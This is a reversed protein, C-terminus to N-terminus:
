RRNHNKNRGGGRLEKIKQRLNVQNSMEIGHKINEEMREKLKESVDEQVEDDLPWAQNFQHINVGGKVGAARAVTDIIWYTQRRLLGSEINIKTHFGERILTYDEVEMRM